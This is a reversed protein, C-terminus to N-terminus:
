RRPAASRRVLHERAAVVARPLAEGGLLDGLRAAVEAYWAAARAGDADAASAPVFERLRPDALAERALLEVVDVGTLQRIGFTVHLSRGELTAANHFQGRPVYVVSGPGVTFRLLPRAEAEDRRGELAARVAPEMAAADLPRDVRVASITWEKHGECHVAIVEHSDFHTAFPTGAAGTAYVNPWVHAGLAEALASALADVAPAVGRARNWVLPHGAALYGELLAPDRLLAGLDAVGAHEPFAVLGEPLSENSSVLGALAALLAEHTLLPATAPPLTSRALHLPEREYYRGFFAEVDLPAVLAALCALANM